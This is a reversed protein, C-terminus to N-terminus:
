SRRLWDDWRLELQGRRGFDLKDDLGLRPDLDRDDRNGRICETPFFLLRPRGATILIHRFGVARALQQLFDTLVQGLSANYAISINGAATREWAV